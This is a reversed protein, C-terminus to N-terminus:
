EKLSPKKGSQRRIKMQIRISLSSGIVAALFLWMVYKLPFCLLLLVSVALPKKLQAGLAAGTVAAAAFVAHGGLAASDTIGAASGFVLSALAFGMCSCGYILPFFHGGKLGFRICFATMAIKLLCVGALAPPAYRMFVAPLQAMQEEGSFLVAPVLLAMIGICLGCLTERAIVPIREAASSTIKEACEFFIFLLLGAPIYLLLLVYDAALPETYGFSPFGEGAAGLVFGLGKMTLLAAATSLGYLILKSTGPISVGSNEEGQVPEEVAFIGFLPIHFLGALTVAAGIQSYERAHQRAYRVNDGTWYCLGAIIGTLGAEPGVSAGLVLPIFACILIVPLSKYDYHKDRKLKVLITQLEEPYLGYKKHILGAALGGATCIIVPIWRIGTLEPTVEWLLGSGLGFLRLFTWIVAGSVAGLLVTFAGLRISNAYREKM